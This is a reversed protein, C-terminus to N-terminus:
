DNFPDVALRPAARVIVKARTNAGTNQMEFSILARGSWNAPAYMGPDIRFNSLDQVQVVQEPLRKTGWPMPADRQSDYLGGHFLVGEIYEGNVEYDIRMGMLSNEDLHQLTGDVVFSVTLSDPLEEATVGVLAHASTEDGMGLRAIWTNEDFEAYSSKGREPYYHHKRIVKAVSVPSLESIGTGDEM